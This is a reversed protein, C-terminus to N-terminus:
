VDRLREAAAPKVVQGEGEEFALEPAGRHGERDPPAAGGVDKAGAVGLLALAIQGRGDGALLDVREGHGLGIGAGVDAAHLAMRPAVAAIPDDVAGLVEDAMGVDSIEDDDEDCGALLAAGGAGLLADGAEEDVAARRAELDPAAVVGDRMAAIV